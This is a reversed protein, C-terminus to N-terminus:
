IRCGGSGQLLGHTKLENLFRFTDRAVQERPVECDLSIRDVVAEATDGAMMRELIRAGTLNASYVLGRGIHLLVVGGEHFSTTVERSLLARSKGASTRRNRRFYHILTSALQFM